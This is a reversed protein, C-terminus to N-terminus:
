FNNRYRDLRGYFIIKNLIVEVMFKEKAIEMQEHPVTNPVEEYKAYKAYRKQLWNDVNFYKFGTLRKDGFRSPM